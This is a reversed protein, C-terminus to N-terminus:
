GTRLDLGAPVVNPAGSVHVQVSGDAEFTGFSTYTARFLITTSGNQGLPAAYVVNAQAHDFARSREAITQDITLSM